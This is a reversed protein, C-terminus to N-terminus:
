MRISCPPHTNKNSITHILVLIDSLVTYIRYKRSKLLLHCLGSIEFLVEVFFCFYPITRARDETNAKSYIQCLCYIMESSESRM